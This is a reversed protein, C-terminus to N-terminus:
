DTCLLCFQPKSSDAYEDKWSLLAKVNEMKSLPCEYEYVQYTGQSEVTVSRLDSKRIYQAAFDAM